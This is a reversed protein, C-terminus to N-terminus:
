ETTPYSLPISGSWYPKNELARYTEELGRSTKYITGFDNLAWGLGAASSVESPKFGNGVYSLVLSASLKGSTVTGIPISYNLIGTFEGITETAKSAENIEMSQQCVVQQYFFLNFSVLVIKSLFSFKM